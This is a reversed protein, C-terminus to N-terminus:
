SPRVHTHRADFTDRYLFVIFRAGDGWIEIKKLLRSYTLRLCRHANADLYARRGGVGKWMASSICHRRRRDHAPTQSHTPTSHIDPQALVTNLYALVM